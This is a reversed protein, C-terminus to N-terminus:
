RANRRTLHLEARRAPTKPDATDAIVVALDRLADTVASALTLVATTIAALLFLDADGPAIGSWATWLGTLALVSSLWRLAATM